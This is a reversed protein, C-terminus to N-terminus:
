EPPRGHREEPTAYNLQLEDLSIVVGSSQEIIRIISVDDQGSSRLVEIEDSIMGIFAPIPLVEESLGAVERLATQARLAQEIRILM